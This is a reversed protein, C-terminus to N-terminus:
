LVLRELTRGVVNDRWIALFGRFEHHFENHFGTSDKFAGTMRKM